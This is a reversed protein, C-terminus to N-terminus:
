SGGSRQLDLPSTWGSSCTATGSITRGSQTMTGRVDCDVVEDLEVRFQLSVTPYDYRGTVSGHIALSSGAFTLLYSGAVDETGSLELSWADGENDTAEWTGAITPIDPDSAGCGMLLLAVLWVGLRTTVEEARPTGKEAVGAGREGTFGPDVWAYARRSSRGRPRKMREKSQRERM